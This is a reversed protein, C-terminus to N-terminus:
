RRDHDHPRGAGSIEAPEFPECERETAPLRNSMGIKTIAWGGARGSQARGPRAAAEAGACLEALHHQEDDGDDARRDRGPLQEELLAVDDVLADRRAEDSRAASRTARSRASTMTPATAIIANM